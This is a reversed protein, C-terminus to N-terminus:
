IQRNGKENNGTPFINLKNAHIYPKHLFELRQGANQIYIEKVRRWAEPIYGWTYSAGLIDALKTVIVKNDKQIFRLYLVM